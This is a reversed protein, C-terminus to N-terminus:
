KGGGSAWDNAVSVLTRAGREGGQKISSRKWPRPYGNQLPKTSAHVRLKDSGGGMNRPGVGRYSTSVGVVRSNV